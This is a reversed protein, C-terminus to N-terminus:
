RADYQVLSASAVLPLWLRVEQVDVLMTAPLGKESRGGVDRCDLSTESTRDLRTRATLTGIFDM